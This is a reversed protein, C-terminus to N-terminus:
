QSDSAVTEVGLRGRGHTHDGAVSTEAGIPDDPRLLHWESVAQWATALALLREEGFPLGGVVVGESVKIGSSESAGIPFAILPLGIMGFPVAQTQIIVDCDQFM